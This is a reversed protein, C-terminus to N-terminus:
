APGRMPFYEASPLTLAIGAVIHSGGRNAAQDQPKAPETEIGAARHADIWEGNAFNRHVVFMAAAAAVSVAVAVHQSKSPLGSMPMVSLPQKAPKTAMV